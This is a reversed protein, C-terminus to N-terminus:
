RLTLTKCNCRPLNGPFKQTDFSYQADIRPKTIQMVQSDKGFRAYEMAHDMTEYVVDMLGASVHHAYIMNRCFSGYTGNNFLQQQYPEHMWSTLYHQQADIRTRDDLVTLNLFHSWFAFNVAFTLEGDFALMGHNEAIFKVIDMSFIMLNEDMRTRGQGPRQTNGRRYWYKGWVFRDRPRHYLLENTISPLCAFSDDDTKILYSFNFNAHSWQLTEVGRRGYGRRGMSSTNLFVLDGFEQQEQMLNRMLHENDQPLETFFRHQHVDPESWQLWTRRQEHRRHVYHPSSGIAIFIFVNKKESNSETDVFTNQSGFLSRLKWETKVSLSGGKSPHAHYLMMMLFLCNLALTCLLANPVSCNRIKM